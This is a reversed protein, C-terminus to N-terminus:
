KIFAILSNWGYYMLVWFDQCECDASGAFRHNTYKLTSKETGNVVYVECDLSSNQETNFDSSQLIKHTCNKM